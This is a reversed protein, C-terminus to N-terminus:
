IQEAKERVEENVMLLKEIDSTVSRVQTQIHGVELMEKEFYKVIPGMLSYKQSASSCLAEFEEKHRQWKKSLLSVQKIIRQHTFHKHIGSEM